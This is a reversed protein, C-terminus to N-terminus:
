KTRESFNEPANPSFPTGEKAFKVHYFNLNILSLKGSGEAWGGLGFSLRQKPTQNQSAVLGQFSQSAKYEGTPLTIIPQIGHLSLHAAHTGVGQIEGEFNARILITDKIEIEDTVFGADVPHPSEIRPRGTETNALVGTPTNWPKWQITNFETAPELTVRQNPVAILYQENDILILYGLQELASSIEKDRFEIKQLISVIDWTNSKATNIFDKSNAVLQIDNQARSGLFPVLSTELDKFALINLPTERDLGLQDVAALQSPGKIFLSMRKISTDAQKIEALLMRYDPTPLVEGPRMVGGLNVLVALAAISLLTQRRWGTPESRLATAWGLILLLIIGPSFYRFTWPYAPTLTMPALTAILTLGGTLLRWTNDFGIAEYQAATGEPATLAYHRHTGLLALPISLLIFWAAGGMNGSLAWMAGHGYLEEQINLMKSSALLLNAILNNFAFNAHEVDIRKLPNNYFAWNVWFRSSFIAIILVFLLHSSTAPRPSHRSKGSKLAAAAITLIAIAPLAVSIKSGAALTSSVLCMGFAIPTNQKKLFILWGATMLFGVVALLDGKVTSALGIMAPTSGIVAALIVAWYTTVGLLRAVWAISVFLWLLVELNGFSFGMLTGSALAYALANLEANWENVFLNLQLTPMQLFVNGAHLWLALRPLGYTQADWTYDFFFLSRLWMLLMVGGIFLLSPNDQLSLSTWAGSKGSLKSSLFLLVSCLFMLALFYPRYMLAVSSLGLIIAAQLAQVMVWGTVLSSLRDLHWHSLLIKGVTFVLFIKWALYTSTMSADIFFILASSM